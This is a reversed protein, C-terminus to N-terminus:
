SKIPKKGVADVRGSEDVRYELWEVNGAKLTKMLSTQIKERGADSPERDIFEVARTGAVSNLGRFAVFDLPHFLVKVDQLDRKGDSFVGAIKKLKRRAVRQGSMRAIERLRQKVKEFRAEAKELDQEKQEALDFPTRPQPDSSFIQADSLRFVGDCEPCIGHIRKLESFLEFTNM